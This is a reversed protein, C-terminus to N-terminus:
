TFENFYKVISTFHFVVCLVHHTSIQVHHEENIGTEAEYKEPVSM